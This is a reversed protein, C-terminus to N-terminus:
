IHGQPHQWHSGKHSHHYPQTAHAEARGVGSSVCVFSAGRGVDALAFRVATDTTVRAAVCARVSVLPCVSSLRAVGSRKADLVCADYQQM